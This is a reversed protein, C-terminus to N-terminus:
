SNVLALDPVWAVLHPCSRTLVTLVSSHPLAGLAQGLIGSMYNNLADMEFDESM